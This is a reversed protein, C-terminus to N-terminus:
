GDQVIRSAGCGNIGDWCILRHPLQLTGCYICRWQTEAQLNIIEPKIEGVVAYMLACANIAAMKPNSNEKPFHWELGNTLMVAM